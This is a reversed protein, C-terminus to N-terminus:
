IASIGGTISITQGTIRAAAPSALFAAMAALDDPVAVGLGALSEAKGFAIKLAFVAGDHWLPHDAFGNDICQHVAVVAAM